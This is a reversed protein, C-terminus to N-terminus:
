LLVDYCPMKDKNQEIAALYKIEQITTVALDALELIHKHLNIYGDERQCDSHAFSQNWANITAGVPQGLKTRLPRCSGMIIACRDQYM